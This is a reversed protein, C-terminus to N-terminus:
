SKDKLNLSSIGRFTKHSLSVQKSELRMLLAEKLRMKIFQIQLKKGLHNSILFQKKIKLNMKISILFLHYFKIKFFSKLFYPRDQIKLVMAVISKKRNLNKIKFSNLKLFNQYHKITTKMRYINTRIQILKSRFWLITLSKTRKLNRKIIKIKDIIKM